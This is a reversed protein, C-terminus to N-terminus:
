ALARDLARKIEGKVKSDVEWILARELFNRAAKGGLRGLAWATHGRLVASPSKLAGALLPVWSRDGSNGMALAANRQLIGKGRWGAATNGFLRRFSRNDLKLIEGLKPFAAERRAGFNEGAQKIENNEPCVEQCVDCGFLRNAFHPRAEQPIFGRMQTLYSLCLAPNLVYPEVLAGTPCAELCRRCGRCGQELPHDYELAVDVLLIGLVVWSGYTPIIISCNEGYYGVGAQYAAERELLPGNDVQIYTERCGGERRLFDALCKLKETLIYHYDLGRASRCIIGEDFGPPPWSPTKASYSLAIVILSRAGPFLSLPTCREVPTGRVFPTFFGRRERSILTRIGRELSVAPAIGIAAIGQEYAFTKFRQTLSM